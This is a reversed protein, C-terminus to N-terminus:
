SYYLYSCDSIDEEELWDNNGILTSLSRTFLSIVIGCADIVASGVYFLVGILNDISRKFSEASKYVDLHCLDFGAQFLNGIFYIGKLSANLMCDWFKLFISGFENTWDYFSNFPSFFGIQSDVPYGQDQYSKAKQEQLTHLTEIFRIAM